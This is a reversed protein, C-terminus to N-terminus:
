VRLKLRAKPIKGRIRLGSGHIIYEIAGDLLTILRGIKKKIKLFCPANERSIVKCFLFLRKEDLMEETFTVM